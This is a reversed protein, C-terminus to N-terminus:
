ILDVCGDPLKALQDLCDRCYIIRTDLLASLRARGGPSRKGTSRKTGPRKAAM